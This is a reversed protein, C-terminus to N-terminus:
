ILKKASERLRHVYHPHLEARPIRAVNEAADLWETPSSRRTAQGMISNYIRANVPSVHWGSSLIGLEVMASLEAAFATEGLAGFLQAAVMWHWVGELPGMKGEALQSARLLSDIGKQPSRLLIWSMAENLAFWSSFEWNSNVAASERCLEIARRTAEAEGLAAHAFVLNVNSLDRLKPDLQPLLALEALAQVNRANVGMDIDIRTRRFVSWQTRKVDKIESALELARRQFHYAVSWKGAQHALASGSQCAFWQAEATSRDEVAAFAVEKALQLAQDRGSMQNPNALMEVALSIREHFPLGPEMAKQAGLRSPTSSFVKGDASTELIRKIHAARSIPEDSSECRKLVERAKTLVHTASDEAPLDSIVVLVPLAVGVTNRDAELLDPFKSNISSLRQRLSQLALNKPSLPWLASALESRSLERPKALLLTALLIEEHVTSFTAVIRNGSTAELRKGIHFELRSVCEFQLQIGPESPYM